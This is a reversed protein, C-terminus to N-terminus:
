FIFVIFLKIWLIMLIFIICRMCQSIADATFECISFDFIMFFESIKTGFDSFIAIVGISFTVCELVFIHRRWLKKLVLFHIPSSLLILLGLIRFLAQLGRCSNFILALILYIFTRLILRIQIEILPM